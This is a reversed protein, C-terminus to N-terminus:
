RRRFLRGDIVALGALILGLGVLQRVELREGLVLWGLGAASIPILFTVLSVATAGAQALIRFFILYALASSLSALGVVALVPEWGPWGLAWPRDVALWVPLMLASSATVQGFATALPTLGAARFRRGWVSAVAYSFAAGLCALLALRTGAMGGDALMALVGGFGLVVGLGRAPTLKEDPTALHAVLVTFVPTMANLVSALAGTIQGQALVFLTFPVVNNLLGMVLLAPWMARPPLPAGTARVVGWLILAALGVRGWVVTLAPLGALALENLLFSGGWLLSLTWLWLWDSGRM